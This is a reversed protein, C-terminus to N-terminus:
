IYMCFCIAYIIYLVYTLIIYVFLVYYVNVPRREYIITYYTDVVSLTDSLRVPHDM